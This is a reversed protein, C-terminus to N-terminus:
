EPYFRVHKQKNWTKSPVYTIEPKGFKHYAQLQEVGGGWFFGSILIFYAILFKKNGLVHFLHENM